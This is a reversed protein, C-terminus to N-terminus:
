ISLVGGLVFMLTNSGQVGGLFLVGLYIHSVGSLFFDAVFLKCSVGFLFIVGMLCSFGSDFFAKSFQPVLVFVGFVGPDELWFIASNM